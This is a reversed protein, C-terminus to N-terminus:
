SVAELASRTRGCLEFAMHVYFRAAQVIDNRCVHMGHLRNLERANTELRTTPGCKIAPVRHLRFVNSDNSANAEGRPFTRTPFGLRDEMVEVATRCLLSDPPTVTSPVHAYVELDYRLGPREAALARLRADLETLAQRGTMDPTIRLNVYIHCVGPVTSPAFPWGSEIAGLTVAPEIPGMGTEYTHRETYEPGWDCLVRVIGSAEEIANLGFGRNPVSLYAARGWVVIKVFVFGTQGNVVHLSSPEAVIAYDIPEWHTVLFRTGYGSGRYRPGDFNRGAGRVPNKESEGAVGSAMVHGRLQVGAQKLARLALFTAAVGGKMNYAGLGYIGADIEFSEPKDNRQPIGLGAYDETEDGSYSTDLHGNLMLTPGEGDGRLVGIVNARGAEIEQLHAEVGADRLYEQLFRACEREEGTPSPVDVLDRALKVADEVTVADLAAQRAQEDM